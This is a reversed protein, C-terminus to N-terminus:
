RIVAMRADLTRGGQALRLFYLGPRRTAASVDVSHRGPGMAGVERRFLRRGAVDMVELTARDRSPLTFWVRPATTAPNPVAGELSLALRAQPQPADVRSFTQVDPAPPVPELNGSSDRALSYFSYTRGGPGSFTDATATTQVRWPRFTSGNESVYVSYNQLDPPSGVAQWRVTFSLSDQNPPLPLVQSEPPTIDVTNSWEPTLLPSGDFDITARNRIVTGGGLGPKPMVTFFLSGEGEALLGNPPLFGVTDPPPVCNPMSDADCSTLSWGLVGTADDLNAWVRVVVNRDPRLDVSDTCSTLGAVPDVTWPRGDSARRGFKIPGLSVTSIDLRAIDLVDTVVVTQAPATATALNEFRISYPLIQASGILREEGFGAGIKDNPDISTVVSVRLRNQWRPALAIECGPPVSDQQIPQAMFDLVQEAMALAAPLTAAGECQWAVKAWLGIGSLAEIGPTSALYAHIATLEAGMCAPDAIVGNGSLCSRFVAGDAWPPSLAADLDFGTVENPVTLYIRRVTAGPPLRPIVVALYRGTEGDLTQPALSWDPEGGEQPPSALAFDLELTASSPVGSIWLPVGFVDSNELNELVIDFAKRRLPRMLSPGVIDVRLQYPDPPQVTFANPLTAGSLDPNSMVVNWAGNARGALDFTATIARGDAAVDVGTGVIDPQGSRTLRVSAGSHFGAGGIAASVPGDDGGRNPSIQHILPANSFTASVSHDDDLDFFTYGAIAGVSQGDVVVNQIAYGEAATVAFTQSSGAFVGVGYLGGGPLIAGAAPPDAVTTITHDFGTVGGASVRQAYIDGSDSSADTFAAIWGGAGCPVVGGRPAGSINGVGGQQGPATCLPVGTVSWQRAGASDLRQAYLDWNPVDEARADLWTVLAGGAGDPVVTVHGQRDAANCVVLGNTGWQAAGSANLRQAYVDGPDLRADEWAIIAGGGGDPALMPEDQRSALACVAIGDNGWQRVGSGDIRQAYVDFQTVGPQWAVIWGGQGDSVSSILFPYDNAISSVPVGDAQWQAIGAANLRQAYVDTNGARRDHWFVVAGGAGDAIMAPFLQSAAATCVAVGNATWQATGTADIRQAYINQDAGSIREDDWAIIAGGQGDSVITAPVSSNGANACVLVGGAAWLPAGAANVRQAYLDANAGQQNWVLIAGGQGDSAIAIPQRQNDVGTLSVGGPTWLPMGAANIRQVYIDNDAGRGDEWALIAGGASDSTAVMRTQHSPAVAVPAGDPIWGRRVSATDTVFTASITHDANVNAFTYSMVPGVSAGDVRVDQIRSYANPTITFTRSAGSLVRAPGAPTILGGPNANTTVTFSEVEVAALNSQPLGNVSAFDGGMYVTSDTVALSYVWHDTAPNWTTALGTVADLAAVGGRTAGGIHTFYGGAYITQGSLALSFVQDDANPNWDTALGTAAHLAAIGNRSQGGIATFAGGAYVTTGELALAFVYSGTANPNWATALGTVADLAAIRNRPQGGISTFSGGVYVTTGSVALARVLNDAGPNWPTALGTAADLAAIRERTQGGISTFYGGAYVTSGSLALANVQDGNPDWATALGTAVDLAAIRSRTQGGIQTFGGGAYITSGAVVLAFVGSNADPNWATLSGTAADLAAINNRTQVNMCTFGGGALVVGGSVGLAQVIANSSPNWATAVGSSADIAAIASRPQGGLTSFTGGAYVTSGSVALAHVINSAGPNWATALGTGMDLAAIHVRPQGGIDTFAGGAYVVGGGLALAGVGANANPNWATALGSAAGLAAINNRPQGGITDFGGSAYVTGGSVALAQVTGNSNPDWSTALGSTADLAAIRSRTEGGISSFQGGAYVVSGSVVLAQVIGDAGPNWATALGTTGDLAAIRGRSQGGITVFSGGAYVTSGSVALSYVLGVPEPSWDSVTYDSELHALNTRPVGGVHTFSGGVYWGGAGDSALALVTGNVRPFGLLAGTSIDIPAAGGTAPGVQSFSGGIYISTGSAVVANVTGNTAYLDTRITQARSPVCTALLAGIAAVLAGAMWHASYRAGQRERM